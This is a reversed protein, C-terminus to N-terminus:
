SLFLSIFVKRRPFFLLFQLSLERFNTIWVVGGEPQSQFHIKWDERNFRGKLASLWETIWNNFKRNSLSSDGCGTKISSVIWAETVVLKDTEGDMILRTNGQKNLSANVGEFLSYFSKSFFSFVLSFTSSLTHQSHFFSIWFFSLSALFSTRSFHFYKKKWDKKNM